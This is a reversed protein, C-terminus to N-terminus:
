QATLNEFEAIGPNTTVEYTGATISVSISSFDFPTAESHLLDWSVADMSTEWFTTGGVERVQWYRHLTPDFAFTGLNTFGGALIKSAKLGGGSLVFGTRFDNDTSIALALIMEAAPAVNPPTAIEVFVRHGRLDYACLANYGGYSTQTSSMTVRLRGGVEETLVGPDQQVKWVAAIAGDDFTDSLEEFTSCLPADIGDGYAANAPDTPPAPADFSFRGCGALLSFLALGRASV